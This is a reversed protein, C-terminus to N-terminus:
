GNERTEHRFYIFGNGKPIININIVLILRPYQIIMPVKVESREDSNCLM